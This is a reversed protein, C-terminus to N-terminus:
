PPDAGSTTPKSVADAIAVVMLRMRIKRGASSQNAAILIRVHSGTPRDHSGNEASAFRGHFPDATKLQWSPYDNEPM